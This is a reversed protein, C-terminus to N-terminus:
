RAEANPITIGWEVLIHLSRINKYAIGLVQYDGSSEFSICSSRSFNRATKQVYEHRQITTWCFPGLEPRPRCWCDAGEAHTWPRRAHRPSISTRGYGRSSDVGSGVWHGM